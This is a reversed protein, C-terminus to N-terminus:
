YPFGGRSIARSIRRKERESRTTNYGPIYFVKMAENAEQLPIRVCRHGIRYRPIVGDAMLSAVMRKSLNWVHAFQDVTVFDGTVEPAEGRRKSSPKNM